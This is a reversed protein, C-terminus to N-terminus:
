IEEWFLIKQNFTHFNSTFVWFLAMRYLFYSAFGKSLPFTLLSFILSKCNDPPINLFLSFWVESYMNQFYGYCADIFLLLSLSGTLACTVYFYTLHDHFCLFELVRKLGVMFWAFPGTCSGLGSLCSDRSCTIGDITVFEFMTLGNFVIM